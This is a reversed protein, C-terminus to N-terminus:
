RRLTQSVGLVLTGHLLTTLVRFLNFNATTGWVRWCIEATLPSFNVINHPCTFSTNSNLLNKGITMSDAVASILRPFFISLFSSLFWLTFIYHGARNCLTAMILSRRSLKDECYWDDRAVRRVRIVCTSKQQPSTNRL